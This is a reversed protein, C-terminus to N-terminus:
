AHNGGDSLIEKFLQRVREDDLVPSQLQPFEVTESEPAEQPGAFIRRDREIAEIYTRLNIAAALLQGYIKGNAAEIKEFCCEGVDLKDIEPSCPHSPSEIVKLVYVMRIPEGCLDCARFIRSGAGYCQGKFLFRAADAPQWLDDRSSNAIRRTKQSSRKAAGYIYIPTAMVEEKRKM